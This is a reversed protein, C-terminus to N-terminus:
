RLLRTKRMDKWYRIIGVCCFAFFIRWGANAPDNDFFVNVAIFVTASMLIIRLAIIISKPLTRKM